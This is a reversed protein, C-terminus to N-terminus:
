TLFSTNTPNVLDFSFGQSYYFDNSAFYDNDYAFRFSNVGKIDRFSATNDIRQATAALSLCLSLAPLLKGMILTVPM